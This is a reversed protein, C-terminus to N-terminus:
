ATAAPPRRCGWTPRPAENPMYVSNAVAQVMSEIQTKTDARLMVATNFQAAEGRDMQATELLKWSLEEEYGKLIWLLTDTLFALQQAESNAFSSKEYDNVQNAQRRLGGRDPPRQAQAARHVPQRDAQHEATRNQLGAARPHLEQHRGDAPPM